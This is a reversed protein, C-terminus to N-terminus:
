TEVVDDNRHPQIRGSRIRDAIVDASHLEIGIWRRKRHECVAFTTGSGGFPDLVVDGPRTSLEIVRELIKTSLSNSKREISKFKRHRVPPIDTWVDKLNMGDIQTPRLIADQHNVLILSLTAFGGVLPGTELTEQGLDAHIM